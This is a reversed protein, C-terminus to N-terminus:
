LIIIKIYIWLREELVFTILIIKNWFWLIFLLLDNVDNDDDVDEDDNYVFFWIFIYSIIIFWLFIISFNNYNFFQFKM